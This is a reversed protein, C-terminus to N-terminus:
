HNKEPFLQSLIEDFSFMGDEASHQVRMANILFEAIFNGVEERTIPVGDKDMEDYMETILEELGIQALLEMDLCFREDNKTM